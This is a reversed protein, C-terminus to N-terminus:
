QQVMILGSKDLLTLGGTSKLPPTINKAMKRKWTINLVM